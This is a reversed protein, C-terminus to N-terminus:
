RAVSQAFRADVAAAALPAAPLPAAPDGGDVRANRRYERPSAGTCRKFAREFNSITGFGVMLGIDTISCNGQVILKEAEVIRVRNVYDIVSLGTHKKFYRCLYFRDTRAFRAIMDLTLKSDLNERIYRIIGCLQDNGGPPTYGSELLADLHEAISTLFIVLYARLYVSAYRRGMEYIRAMDGLLRETSDRLAPPLTIFRCGHLQSDLLSFVDPIRYGPQRELFSPRYILLTKECYKDNVIRNHVEFTNVFIIDGPGATYTQDRVFFDVEGDTLFCIEFANHYHPICRARNARCSSRVVEIDYGISEFESM